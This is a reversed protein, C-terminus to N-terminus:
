DHRNERAAGRARRLRLAVLKRLEWVKLRWPVWFLFQLFTRRAGRKKRLKYLWYRRQAPTMKDRHKAYFCYYGRYKRDSSTIRSSATSYAIYLPERVRLAPGYAEIFRVWMDADQAAPLREDYGGLELFRDRRALVPNGVVNTDLMERLTVLQARHRVPKITSGSVFYDSTIFSYRDDCATMLREIREPLFEDDDDLGAIYQGAAAQMGANRAASGGRAVPNRLGRIRGYRSAFDRVVEATRDSSGDDVIVIEVNGYTQALVSEVSRALLGARNHTPIVISVLPQVKKINM